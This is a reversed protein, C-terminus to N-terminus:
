VREYPEFLKKYEDLAYRDTMGAIYDCILREPCDTSSMKTRIKQPLIDRRQQFREFLRTIFFKAKDAMRIIRFHFYLDQFLFQRFEKNKLALDPSLCILLRDHDRVQEVSEVAAEELERQSNLIADTLLVNKLHRVAQYHRQEDSKCAGDRETLDIVQQWLQLKSLDKPDLIESRLGDELDHCNYAIEDALNVVQGELCPKKGPNFDEESPHDYASQHKIIGERAEWSLNLGPFAQYREELIDVVRLSQRNHEFGGFDKMLHQLTEEGAHGFPTHGLDHAMAIVETLDINLRLARALAVATQGVELTHTLRTRYHDGEYNVFVQTKYELRRFANSHVIRDKDRQFCTRFTAEPEPYQRGKSQCAKLAFPALHQLEYTEWNQRISVPM